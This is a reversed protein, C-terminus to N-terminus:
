MMQYKVKLNVNSNNDYKAAKKLNLLNVLFFTEMLILFHLYNDVLLLACFVHMKDNIEIKLQLTKKHKM